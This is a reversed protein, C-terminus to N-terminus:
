PRRQHWLADFRTTLHDITPTALPQSNTAILAKEDALTLANAAPAIETEVNIALDCSLVAPETFTLPM